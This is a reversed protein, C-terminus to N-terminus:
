RTMRRNQLRVYDGLYQAIDTHVVNRMIFNRYHLAQVILYDVKIEDGEYMSLLLPKLRKMLSAHSTNPSNVSVDMLIYFLEYRRMTQKISTFRSPLRFEVLGSGKDLCLQYKPHWLVYDIGNIEETPSFRRHTPTSELMRPNHKCYHNRLRGQFLALLIGSHKRMLKVLKASDLGNCSVTIHGGCNSDSPSYRDEIIHKAEHLMSFIKNRWHGKPLLPLINTIAEFGCSGDEEYGKFLLHEQYISRYIRTKEIEIGITFRATHGDDELLLNKLDRRKLGLVDFSKGGKSLDRPSPSHHYSSLQARGVHNDKEYKIEDRELRIM